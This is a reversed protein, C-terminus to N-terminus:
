KSPKPMIKVKASSLDVECRAPPMVSVMLAGVAGILLGVVLVIKYDMFYTLGLLIAFYLVRALDVTSEMLFIYESRSEEDAHLYYESSFPSKQLSKSFSRSLNVAFAATINEVFVRVIGVIFSILGGTKLYVMRGTKDARKMIWFTVFVTILLSASTVIGINEYGKIFIILLLPWIQMDSCTEWGLGSYSILDRWIDKIKVKKIDIGGPRFNNDGTKFLFVSGVLLTAIVFVILYEVGLRTAIIGGIFPAVAGTISVLIEMTGTQKTAKKQCKTRSFDYHYAEWFLGLSLGVPLALVWPSWHYTGLTLLQWFHFMLFPLSLVMLHKPGIKKLLLASPYEFVFEIFYLLIYYILINQFGYGSLFLYIPIFIGILSLAFSRASMFFYIENLETYKMRYFHHKIQHHGELIM